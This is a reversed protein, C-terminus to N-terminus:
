IFVLDARDGNWGPPSLVGYRLPLSSLCVLGTESFLKGLIKRKCGTLCVLGNLSVVKWGCISVTRDLTTEACFEEQDSETQMQLCATRHLASCEAFM